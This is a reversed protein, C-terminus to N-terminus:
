YLASPAAPCTREGKQTRIGSAAGAAVFSTAAHVGLAVTDTLPLGDALARTVAAAFSDGAGCTDLAPVKPTPAVSPPRSSTALVAGQDGLTVAVGSVGWRRVLDMAHRAAAGADGRAAVAGPAAFVLAEAENPTVLRVGPMPRSGRPHPDWAVPLRGAIGALLRRTEPHVTMGRGYDSVLVAAAEHLALQAQAPLAADATVRGRGSDLRMLVQSRTMVRVKEPTEGDLPLRIVSAIGDLMAAVQEGAEDDGLGTILVVDRDGPAAALLAALGAGGPRERREDCDIVPAKGDPTVRSLTGRLDTDLLADGIIVLPGRTV